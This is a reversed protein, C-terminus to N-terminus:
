NDSKRKKMVVAAALLAAIGAFGLSVSSGCGGSSGSEETNGSDSSDTSEGADAVTIEIENSAESNKLVWAGSGVAKVTIKHTGKESVTFKRETQVAQEVGDVSVIYGDAGKVTAWVVANEGDKEIVPAALEFKEDAIERRDVFKAVNEEVKATDPDDVPTVRLNDFSQFCGEDASIGFYGYTDEVTWEGGKVYNDKNFAVDTINQTYLTIKNNAVVLKVATVIDKEANYFTEASAFDYNGNYTGASYDNMRILNIDPYYLISVMYSNLNGAYANSAVCMAFTGNYGGNKLEAPVDHKQIYDFEVIYDSYAKKTSLYAWMGAGDFNFRGGDFTIGKAKSPDALYLAKDSQMVWVDDDIFGTNFNNAIEGGESAQYTYKIIKLSKDVIVKTAGEGSGAVVLYGDFDVNEFTFNETGVTVVLKKGKLGELMVSTESGVLNAALTKDEEGLALHSKGEADLYFHLYAGEALPSDKQPLGLGFGFKNGLSDFYLKGELTFIKESKEDTEIPKKLAMRHAEDTNESVLGSAKILKLASAYVKEDDAVDSKWEGDFDCGFLTQEQTVELNDIKLLGWDAIGFRMEGEAYEAPFADKIYVVQNNLSVRIIGEKMFTFTMRGPALSLLAFNARQEVPVTCAKDAFFRQVGEVYNYHCAVAGQHVYAYYDNETQNFTAINASAPEIIAYLNTYYDTGSSAEAAELIDFSVTVDGKSLDKTAYAKIISTEGSGTKNTAYYNKEAPVEPEPDKDEGLKGLQVYNEAYCKDDAATASTWEKGFDCSYLSNEGQKLELNDITLVGWAALGFRMEGSTYEAPFADKIYVTVEGTGWNYTIGLVREATYTFTMKGAGLGFSIYDGSYAYPDTCAKDKYFLGEPKSVYYSYDAILLNQKMHAYYNASGDPSMKSVAGAKPEIAAYLNTYYEAGVNGASAAIVDFSLTVDGASLDATKYPEIVMVEGAPKTKVQPEVDEGADNGGESSGEDTVTQVNSAFFKSSDAEASSWGEGFDTAVAIGNQSLTLNDVKIYGWNQFGFRMEGSTYEAPFADKIYVTTGNMTAAIVREKTFTFSFRGEALSYGCYDATQNVPVTLEKDAYFRQVGAEYNYDCVLAGSHLFAYYGTASGAAIKSEAGAEPEIIAYLHTGYETASVASNACGLIDFSLTVDGKSLDATKYPEVIMSEGTDTLNMVYPDGKGTAWTGKGKKDLEEWEVINPNGSDMVIQESLTRKQYSASAVPAAYAGLLAASVLLALLKKKM